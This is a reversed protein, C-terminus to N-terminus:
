QFQSLSSVNEIVNPAWARQCLRVRRISGHRGHVIQAAAVVRGVTRQRRRGAIAVIGAIIDVIAYPRLLRGCGM